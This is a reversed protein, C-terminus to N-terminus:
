LSTIEFSRYHSYCSPAHGGSTLVPSTLSLSVPKEPGSNLLLELTAGSISNEADGFDGSNFSYIEEDEENYCGLGIGNETYFANGISIDNYILDSSAEQIIFFVYDKPDYGEYDWHQIDIYGTLKLTGAFMDTEGLKHFPLTEEVPLFQPPKPQPPMVQQPPLQQTTIVETDLETESQKLVAYFGIGFVIVVALIVISPTSLFGKTM